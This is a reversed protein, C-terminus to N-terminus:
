SMNTSTNKRFRMNLRRSMTEDPLRPEDIADVEFGHGAFVQEYRSRSRRIMATVLGFDGIEDRYVVEDLEADVVKKATRDPHPVSIVVVGNPAALRAINGVVSDIDSVYHFVLKAVTLDVEGEQLPLKGTGDWDLFKNDPMRDRALSLLKPSADAGYIKRDFRLLKETFVADGCGYDLIVGGIESALQEISPWNVTYEYWNRREDDALTAFEAAHLDYYRAAENAGVGVAHVKKAM